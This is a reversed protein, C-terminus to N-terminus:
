IDNLFLDLLFNHQKVIPQGLISPWETCDKYDPMVERFHRASRPKSSHGETGGHPPSSGTAAVNASLAKHRARPTHPGGELLQLMEARKKAVEAVERAALYFRNDPSPKGRWRSELKTAKEALLHLRELAGVLPAINGDYYKKKEADKKNDYETWDIWDFWRFAEGMAHGINSPPSAVRWYLGLVSRWHSERLVLPWNERSQVTSAHM